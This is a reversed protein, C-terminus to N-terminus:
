HSSRRAMGGQDGMDEDIAVFIQLAIGNKAHLVRQDIGIGLMRRGLRRRIPAIEIAGPAPEVVLEPKARLLQFARIPCHGSQASKSFWTTQWPTKGALAM